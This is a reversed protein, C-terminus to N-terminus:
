KPFDPMSKVITPNPTVFSGPPIDETVISGTVIISGDGIQVGPTIIVQPQIWVNNGIKVDKIVEFFRKFYLKVPTSAHATIITRDGVTTHNGITIKSTYVRDILLERGLYVDNGVKLGRAKHLYVRISNLPCYYALLELALKIQYFLIFNLRNLFTEKKGLFYLKHNIRKKLSM